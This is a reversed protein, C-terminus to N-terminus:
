VVGLENCMNGVRVEMWNSNGKVNEIMKDKTKELRMDLDKEEEKQHM